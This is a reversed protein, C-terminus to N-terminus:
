GEYKIEKEQIKGNEGMRGCKHTGPGTPVVRNRRVENIEAQTMRTEGHIGRLLTVVDISHPFGPARCWACSNIYNASASFKSGCKVCTKM